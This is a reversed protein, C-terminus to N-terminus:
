PQKRAFTLAAQRLVDAEMELRRNEREPEIIREQRPPRSDAARSSGTANIASIWRRLASRRLDHEAVIEHPPKGGNCLEAIQRRSEETFHGPHKPDAM